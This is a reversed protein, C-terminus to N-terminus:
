LAEYAVMSNENTPPTVKLTEVAVGFEVREGQEVEWGSGKRFGERATVKLAGDVEGVTWRVQM